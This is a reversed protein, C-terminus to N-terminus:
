RASEEPLLEAVADVLTRGGLQPWGNGGPGRLQDWIELLMQRDADTMTPGGVPPPPPTNPNNIATVRDALAQWPFGPGPDTHDTGGWIRTDDHGYLGRKNKLLDPGDLIVPPIGHTRCWYAVVQALAEFMRAREPALWQARTMNARAVVAVHLLVDNGLNGSSWTTWDDTNELLVRGADDVLRHYSGSRTRLQYGAVNEAPTGPDNETTHICIGLIPHRRPGGFDFRQHWDVTVPGLTM